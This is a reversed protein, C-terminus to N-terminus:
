IQTPQFREAPKIIGTIIPTLGRSARQSKSIVGAVAFGLILGSFGFLIASLSEGVGLQKHLGGGGIAGLLLSVTPLIYLIM